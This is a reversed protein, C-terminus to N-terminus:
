VYWEAIARGIQVGSDEQLFHVGPVTVETQNPWTRCFERQRGVLISGPDANIFLKRVPAEALWRGYDEVVQGVAAPEGGIPIERPWSLMPRRGEGRERYPRRYEAMTEDSLPRIVSAPLIREIFVNKDLVLEEGASSRMAAFVSRGSAPWDDWTLPMVLTEMYVIGRVAPRHRNAWDFGLAGGWDHGVITVDRYVGLVDLLADLYTRHDIFRYSRPGTGVKESDGMGILDPAICRGLHAVEPIVNRWLYSSTPNGHLFVIPRGEGVDIFAMEAGLVKQRRKPLSPARRRFM